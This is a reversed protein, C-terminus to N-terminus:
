YKDGKQLNDKKWLPQLNKYNFCERQQDPDTFDFSACPRIHDIHWEGHNDWTMGETWLSEIHKRAEDVSCGLLNESSASKKARGKLADYVRTRITLRLRFNPDKNKREKRYVTNQPYLIHKRAKNRERGKKQQEEQHLLYWKRTNAIRKEKNKHYHKKDGARRCELCAGTLGDPRHKDKGFCSLEKDTKCKSCKKM